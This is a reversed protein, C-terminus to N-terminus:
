LVYGDIINKDMNEGIVVFIDKGNDVPKINIEEKTANVEHFDCLDEKSRGGAIFGKIRFVNGAKSDTMIDNIMKRIESENKTIGTNMYYISDYNNNDNVPMKIHDHRKYECSSLMKMDNDDLEEWSKSFVVDSKTIGSAKLGDKLSLVDESYFIRNCSFDKLCKNLHDVTKKIRNKDAFQSKSIIVKGADAIQSTLLYESDPSMNDPLNADVISLVNGIEYWNDLPEEYLTDFFEDVDYIGSPEVIVRTYGSMGMSILKTKYRRKHCDYDCGGAVMEINCKEGLLEGVLVMDVNVAGYDNELICIKEGRDLHYKVYKKIFTTKGSGLFGTILDIKIM